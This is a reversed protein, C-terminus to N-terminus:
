SMLQRALEGVRAIAHAILGTYPCPNIRIYHEFAGQPGFIAGPSIGIGAYRGAFFLQTGSVADPLEVWLSYGGGPRSVRTGPPFAELVQACAAQLDAAIRRALRRRHREFGGSGVIHQLVAVSVGPITCTTTRLHNYFAHADGRTALWGVKLSPAVTESFNSCLLVNPSEAFAMIPPPLGPGFGTPNHYTPTTLLTTVRRSDVAEQLRDVILGDADMPIPLSQIGLSSLIRRLPFYLPTEVAVCGDRRHFFQLARAIGNTIGDTLVINDACVTVGSLFLRQAIFARLIESNEVTTYGTTLSSVAGAEQRLARSLLPRPVFEDPMWDRDLHVVPPPTGHGPEWGPVLSLLADEAPNSEPSRKPTRVVYTGTREKSQVVGADELCAIAARVSNVGANFARALDRVSPLREGPEYVDGAIANEIARAISRTRSVRGHEAPSGTSGIRETDVSLNSSKM